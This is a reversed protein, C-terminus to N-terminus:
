YGRDDTFVIGGNCGKVGCRSISLRDASFKAARYYKHGCKVCTYTYRLAIDDCYIGLGLNYRNNLDNLTELFAGGHKARPHKVHIMEHVLTKIIQDKHDIHYSTSLTIYFEWLSVSGKSRIKLQMVGAKVKLSNSWRVSVLTPLESNFYMDNYKNYLVKLDEDTNTLYGLGVLRAFEGYTLENFYLGDSPVLLGKNSSMVINSTVENEVIVENTFSYDHVILDLTELGVEYNLTNIVSGKYGVVKCRYGVVKNNFVLNSHLHIKVSSM